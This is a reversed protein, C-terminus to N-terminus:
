VLASICLGQPRNVGNFPLFHNSFPKEQSISVNLDFAKKGSILDRLDDWTGWIFGQRNERAFISANPAIYLRPKDGNEKNNGPWVAIWCNDETFLFDAKEPVDVCECCGHLFKM